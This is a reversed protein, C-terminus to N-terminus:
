NRAYSSSQYSNENTKGGSASRTVVRVDITRALGDAAASLSEVSTAITTASTEACAASVASAVTGLSLNHAGAAGSAIGTVPQYSVSLRGPVDNPKVLCYARVGTWAAVSTAADLRLQGSADLPTLVALRAMPTLESGLRACSTIPGATCAFVGEVNANRLDRQIRYAVSVTSQVADIKVQVQSPSSAIPGILTVAFASFLGLLAMATLTEALTMGRAHRDNAPSM